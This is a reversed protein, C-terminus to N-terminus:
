KDKGHILNRAKILLIALPLYSLYGQPLITANMKCSAKLPYVTDEIGARGSWQKLGRLITFIAAM